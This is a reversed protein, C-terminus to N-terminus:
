KPNLNHMNNGLTIFVIEPRNGLRIPPGWTGYGCSVYFGTSGIRLYGRSLRFIAKTIYNFPWIQGHHTHGSLQLDVGAAAVSDLDFPQHDMLVLPLSPDTGKLVESLPKRPIGTFRLRDRDDRGALTFRGDIAVSTDHLFKIGYAQLYREAKDAGGIYEHNGTVAWVGYRAKLRVLSAGLDNGIVPAIDEDVVDGALLIIDADLPNMMEALREAKKKGIITGLHIDSAMAITVPRGDKLPKEVPVFIRVVRPTRANVYGAICQVATFAIAIWFLVLRTKAPDATLFAPLGGAGKAILRVLDVSVTFLFFFLMCALWFSGTWTLIETLTCPFARELVRAIIFSAALLWFTISFWLRGHGTAPLAQYGRFFIYFNVLLYVILIICFFLILQGTKM